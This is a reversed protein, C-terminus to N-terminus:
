ASWPLSYSLATERISSEASQTQLIERDESEASTTQMVGRSGSEASRVGAAPWALYFAKMQWVNRISFGRGYRASLDSSLRVMLGEGYEARPRGAQESEVIRRGILWYLATMSANVTRVVSRRAEEIMESVDTLIAAYDPLDRGHHSTRNESM